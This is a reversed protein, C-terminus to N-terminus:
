KRQGPNTPLEGFQQEFRKILQSLSMSLRKANVYSLAVRDSIKLLLQPQNPNQPNPNVMNFGFDIVVEEPAQNIRYANAYVFKVDRDDVLVQIQQQQGEGQAQQNLEDSM